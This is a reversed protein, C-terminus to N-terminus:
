GQAIGGPIVIDGSHAFGALVHNCLAIEKHLIDLRHDGLGSRTVIVEPEPERCLDGRSPYGEEPSQQSFTTVREGTSPSPSGM